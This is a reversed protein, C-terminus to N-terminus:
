FALGVGVLNWGDNPADKKIGLKRGHSYHRYEVFIRGSLDYALSVDFDWHTGNLSNKEDIWVTGLGAHWKEYTWMYDVGAFKNPAGGEANRDRAWFGARVGWAGGYRGSIVVSGPAHVFDEAVSLRLGGKTEDLAYSPASLLLVVGLLFGKIAARRVAVSVMSLHSHRV